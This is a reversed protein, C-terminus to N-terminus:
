KRPSKSRSAANPHVHLWSSGVSICIQDEYKASSTLYRSAMALSSHHKLVGDQRSRPRRGGCGCGCRCGRRCRGCVADVKVLVVVGVGMGMGM